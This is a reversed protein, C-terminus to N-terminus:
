NTFSWASTIGVYGFVLAEAIYGLTQFTVMTVHQGQPSLNYWTYHGFIISIVLLSCIASMELLESVLYALFGWALLLASEVVASHTLFRFQKTMLTALVGCFIGILV